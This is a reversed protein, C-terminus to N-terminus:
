SPDTSDPATVHSWTARSRILRLNREKVQFKSAIEKNDSGNDMMARIAIIDHERLKSFTNRSGVPGRKTGHKVKDCTNQHATGWALNGPRNNAKNGDLHRCQMGPPCPGHFATAILRHVSETHPKNGSCLSVQRYGSDGIGGVLVRWRGGRKSYISGDSCAAYCPHGDILAFTEGEIHPLDSKFM